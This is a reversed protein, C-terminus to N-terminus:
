RDSGYSVVMIKDLTNPAKQVETGSDATQGGNIAFEVPSTFKVKVPRGDQEGPTWAPSQSLVKIVQESLIRDPSKLIEIDTVKGQKDVIFSAIVRGGTGNALADDPYRIKTMVYTRFDNLNGGHFTPMKDALVYTDDAEATGNAVVEMESANAQEGDPRIIRMSM